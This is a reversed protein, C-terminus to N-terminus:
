ATKIKIKRPLVKESKPLELSLLGDKFEATIEDADVQSAFEFKRSFEGGRRESKALRENEGAEAVTKTGSIVLRNEKMEISVDDASVGPLEMVLLYGTESETVNAPPVLKFPSASATQQNRFFHDFLNEIDVQFDGLRNSNSSTKMARETPNSDHIVSVEAFRRDAFYFHSCDPFAVVTGFQSVPTEVM